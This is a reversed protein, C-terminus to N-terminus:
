NPLPWKTGLVSSLLSNPITSCITAKYRAEKTQLSKTFSLLLAAMHVCKPSVVGGYSFVRISSTCIVRLLYTPLEGPAHKRSGLWFSTKSTMNKVLLFFPM